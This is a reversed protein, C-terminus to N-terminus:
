NLSTIKRRCNDRIDTICGSIDRCFLYILVQKAGKLPDLFSLWFFFIILIMPENSFLLSLTLEELLVNFILLSNHESFYFQLAVVSTGHLVCSDTFGSSLFRISIFWM